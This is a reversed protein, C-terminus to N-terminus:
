HLQPVACYLVIRPILFVVFNYIGFMVYYHVFTFLVLRSSFRSASSGDVDAVVHAYFLLVDCMMYIYIRVLESSKM